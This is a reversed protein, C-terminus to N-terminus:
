LGTQFPKVKIPMKDMTHIIKDFGGYVITYKSCFISQNQSEGGLARPSKDEFIKPKIEELRNIVCFLM